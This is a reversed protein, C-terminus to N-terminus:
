QCIGVLFGKKSIESLKGKTEESPTRYMWPYSKGKTALRIKQKTKESITGGKNPSKRGKNALSIKLKTETSQKKGLRRTNGILAESKKPYQINRKKV